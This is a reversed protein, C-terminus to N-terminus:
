VGQELNIDMLKLRMRLSGASCRIVHSTAGESQDGGEADDCRRRSPRGFRLKFLAIPM